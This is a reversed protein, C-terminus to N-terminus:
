RQPFALENGVPHLLDADEPPIFWRVKLGRLQSFYIASHKGLDAVTFTPEEEAAAPSIGRGGGAMGGRGGRGGGRGGRGGGRDPGGGRGGAGGRGGGNLVAVKGGTKVAEEDMRWTRREVMPILTEVGTLEPLTYAWAKGEWGNGVLILRVGQKQALERAKAAGAEVDEVRVPQVIGVNSTAEAIEGPLEEGKRQEAKWGAWVLTGLLAWCVAVVGARVPWSRLGAVTKTWVGGAESMKGRREWWRMPKWNVLLLLWVVLVPLALYMRDYPFSVTGRGDTMRSYAFTTMLFAVGAAAALLGGIRLRVLLLVGIVAATVVLAKPAVDDSWFGHAAHWEPLWLPVLDNFVYGRLIYDDFYRHYNEWSWTFERVRLYQRYDDHWVYYFKYVYWPYPAAAALGLIGFVWFRWELFSSLIAYVAVPVLLVLVNPNLQIAVLALFGAVFYRTKPWTRRLTLVPAAAGTGQSDVALEMVPRGGLAEGMAEGGAEGQRRIETDGQRGKRGRWLGWVRGGVVQWWMRERRVAPPLLLMASVAGVAVGTVFGRPMGTMMAYRTPLVLPVALALGAVVSQRRRWAAYALLLFPLLGLVVTVLPVAVAYSVGCWILPVALWGELVSNYAQGFFCPEPIRGHMLEWAGYWMIAQDEDTWKFLFQECLRWRDAILLALLALVLAGEVWRWRWWPRALRPIAGPGPDASASHASHLIRPTEGPAARVAEDGGSNAEEMHRTM